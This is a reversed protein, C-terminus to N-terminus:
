GDNVGKCCEEADKKEFYGENCKQCMFCTKVRIHCCNNAAVENFYSYECNMCMFGEKVNM